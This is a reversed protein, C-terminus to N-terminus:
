PKFLEFLVGGIEPDFYFGGGGGQWKTGGLSKMGRKTLESTEKDLDDVTFAVHHVGEGKSDLFERWPSEGKGPEFLVLSVSGLNAIM